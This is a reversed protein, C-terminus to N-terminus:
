VTKANFVGLGCTSPLVQCFPPGPAGMKNNNTVATVNDVLLLVRVQIKHQTFAKVAFAEGMLELCNIHLLRASQTWLGGTRIGNCVAGWGLLSADTEITLDPDGNVLAKGNWAMM